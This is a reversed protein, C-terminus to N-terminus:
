AAKSDQPRLGKLKRISARRKEQSLDTRQDIQFKPTGLFARALTEMLYKEPGGLQGYKDVMNRIVAREPAVAEQLTKLILAREEKTPQFREQVVRHIEDRM